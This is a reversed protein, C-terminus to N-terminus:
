NVLAERHTFITFRVPLEKWQLHLKWLRVSDAFCCPDVYRLPIKM